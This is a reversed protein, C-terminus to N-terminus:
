EGRALRRGRRDDEDVLDVRYASLAARAETTAVVLALLRQVLEEDLHVTKVRRCADAHTRRGVARVDEVRGEQPRAPEIPLYGDAKGIPDAALRDELDVGLAQGQRGVGVQSDDGRRRRPEGTRVQGVQGVLRRKPC